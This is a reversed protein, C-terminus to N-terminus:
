LKRYTNDHIDTVVCLDGIVHQCKTANPWHTTRYNIDDNAHIRLDKKMWHDSGVVPTMIHQKPIKFLTTAQRSDEDCPITHIIM